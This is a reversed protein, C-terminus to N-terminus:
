DGYQRKFIQAAIRLISVEAFANLLSGSEAPWSERIQFHNRAHRRLAVFARRVIQRLDCLSPTGAYQFAAHLFGGIPNADRDLQDISGTVGM